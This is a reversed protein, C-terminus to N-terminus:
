SVVARSRLDGNANRQNSVYVYLRRYGANWLVSPVFGGSSRSGSCLTVNKVDLHENTLLFYGLELLLRELLTIGVIKAEKLDDASKGSLEPDAEVTKKFRVRYSGNKCDRNNTSVGNDLDDTYTYVDVGLKRFTSIVKNPTVGKMVYVDWFNPDAPIALDSSEFKIGLTEYVHVWNIAGDNHNFRHDLVSQLYSGDISGDEIQRFFDKLQSVTVLSGEVLVKTGM